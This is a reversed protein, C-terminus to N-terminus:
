FDSGLALKGLPTFIKLAVEFKAITIIDPRCPLQCHNRAAPECSLVYCLYSQLSFITQDLIFGEAILATSIPGIKTSFSFNLTYTSSVISMGHVSCYSLGFDLDEFESNINRITTLGQWYLCYFYQTQTAASAHGWNETFKSGIAIHPIPYIAIVQVHFPIYKWTSHPQM